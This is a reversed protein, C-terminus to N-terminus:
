GADPLYSGFSVTQGNILSGPYLQELPQGLRETVLIRRVTLGTGPGEILEGDGAALMVHVIRTPTGAKSLFILDAPQPTPIPRARLFQEHADRPIAIGVARYVLNTLGSCDVGTVADADIATSSPSEGAYRPLHRLGFPQSLLPDGGVSPSRGGWFYPDGVFRQARELIQERQELPSLTKLADLARAAHFPIWVTDGDMLDVKWLTRDTETARLHTGMPFRWRSVQLTHPDEWAQVWKETVVITPTHQAEFPLLATLRVWGPYGQWRAAHTFEPQEVAEVRAWGAHTTLLRVREGYLLQTEQLPDHTAPQATTNPQARLDTVPVHVMM